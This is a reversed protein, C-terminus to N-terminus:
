RGEALAIARRANLMLIQRGSLSRDWGEIEALTVIDALAELLAPAADRLREVDDVRSAKAKAIWGDLDQHM